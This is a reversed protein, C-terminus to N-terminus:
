VSINFIFSIDLEPVFKNIVSINSVCLQTSKCDNM